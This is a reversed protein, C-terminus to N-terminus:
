VALLEAFGEEDAAVDVAAALNAAEGGQNAPSIINDNWKNHLADGFVL